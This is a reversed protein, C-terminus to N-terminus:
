LLGGWSRVFPVLSLLRELIPRRRRGAVPKDEWFGASVPGVPVGFEQAAQQLAQKVPSTQVATSKSARASNRNDYMAVDGVPRRRKRPKRQTQFSSGSELAEASSSDHQQPRALQPGAKFTDSRSQAPRDSPGLVDAEVILPAQVLRSEAPWFPRARSTRLWPPQSSQRRRQQQPAWAKGKSPLMSLLVTGFPSLAITGTVLLCLLVHNVAWPIAVILVPLAVLAVEPSFSLTKRDSLRRRVQRPQPAYQSSAQSVFTIHRVTQFQTGESIRLSGLRQRRAVTRVSLILGCRLTKDYGVNPSLSKELAKTSM